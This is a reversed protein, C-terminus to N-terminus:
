IATLARASVRANITMAAGAPACVTVTSASTFGSGNITLTQPSSSGTMPNPSVGTIHPGQGPAVQFAFINSSTGNPNIVQATWNAANTGVTILVNLQTQSIFNVQGGQLDTQGGPFTVRVKLGSGNVFNSGFISVTQDVSSGPIPNPSMSDIHPTPAVVQFSFQGSSLGQDIVEATWQAATTGITVPLTIQTSTISATPLNPYTQFPSRLTVTSSSSFGSGSITLTQQNNSGTMPNPSVSTIKPGNLGAVSFSFINSGQGDPNIVQATWNAGNTGVNILINLQSASVFSVQAGQLDTQGGPYTVRVKLGSGNVFGSGIVGVTQNGSAGPVPNPNM